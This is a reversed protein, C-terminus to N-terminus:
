ELIGSLTLSFDKSNSTKAGKAMREGWREYTSKPLMTDMKHLKDKWELDTV